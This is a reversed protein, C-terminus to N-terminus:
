AAHAQQGCCPCGVAVLQSACHWAWRALWRYFTSMCLNCASSSGQRGAHGPSRLAGKAQPPRAQHSTYTDLGSTPEDLFLVRPSTVLAIGINVRKSQGGTTLILPRLPRLLLTVPVEAM